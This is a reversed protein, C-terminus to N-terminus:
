ARITDGVRARSGDIDKIQHLLGAIHLSRLSEHRAAILSPSLVQEVGSNNSEVSVETKDALATLHSHIRRLMPRAWEIVLVNIAFIRVVSVVFIEQAISLLFNTSWSTITSLPTSLGWKLIWVIFFLICGLEFLWATLWLVPHISAPLEATFHMFTRKLSIQTVFDFHELTYMQALYAGKDLDDRYCQASALINAALTRARRVYHGVCSRCNRFWWASLPTLVVNGNQLKLGYQRLLHKTKEIEPEECLGRQFRQEFHHFGKTITSIVLEEDAISYSNYYDRYKSLSFESSGLLKFSDLGIKELEPRRNCVCNLILYFLLDFPALIIM